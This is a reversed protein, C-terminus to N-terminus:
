IDSRWSVAELISMTPPELYCAWVDWRRVQELLSHRDITSLVGFTSSGASIGLKCLRAVKWRRGHACTHLSCYGPRRTLISAKQLWYSKCKEHFHDCCRRCVQEALPRAATLRCTQQLVADRALAAELSLDSSPWPSM